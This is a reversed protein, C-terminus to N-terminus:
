DQKKRLRSRSVNTDPLVGRWIQFAAAGQEILMGLGDATTSAMSEVTSLFPTRGTRSYTLDYCKAQAVVEKVIPLDFNDSWATIANVVIDWGGQLDNLQAIRIQPFDRQLQQAKEFTRNAVTLECNANILSQVIGKVAGGAGLVLVKQEATEWELCRLDEVLGIGDTNYGIPIDDNMAITNVAKAKDALPDAEEVWSFADQKFPATVNLGRGGDSFFKEVTEAFGDTPAWLRGYQIDQKTQEAFIAHIEPSLSHEIPNGIVAYKDSM